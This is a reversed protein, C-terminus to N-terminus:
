RESEDFLVGVRRVCERARVLDCQSCGSVVVSTPHGTVCVVHSSIAAFERAAARVCSACCAVRPPGLARARGPSLAGNAEATCTLLRREDCVRASYAGPKRVQLKAVSLPAALNVPQSIPGRRKTHPDACLAVFRNKIDDLFAFPIRRGFEEDAM